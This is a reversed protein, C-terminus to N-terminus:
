RTKNLRQRHERYYAANYATKYARQAPTKRNFSRVRGQDSAEYGPFDPILKWNEM